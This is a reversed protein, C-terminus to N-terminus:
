PTGEDSPKRAGMAAKRGADLLQQTEYLRAMDAYPNGPRAAEDDLLRRHLARIEGTRRIARVVLLVIVPIGIVYVLTRLVEYASM